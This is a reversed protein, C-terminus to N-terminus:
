PEILPYLKLNQLFYTICLFVDDYIIIGKIKRCFVHVSIGIIGIPWYAENECLFVRMWLFKRRMKKNLDDLKQKTQGIKKKYNEFSM